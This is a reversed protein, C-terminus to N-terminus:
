NNARLKRLHEAHVSGGMLESWGVSSVSQRFEDDWVRNEDFLDNVEPWIPLGCTYHYLKAKKPEQYGVCHNWEPPLEGVNLAWDFDFLVNEENQVYEPTLYRCKPNSFVMMSPREFDPQDKVVFVSGDTPDISDILECVDGAVIMDPDMFMARGRFDCLYPVLFRSFTFETLGRRTIPLQPLILPTVSVPKSANRAVSYQAVNYAIPQRPDYGIFVRYESM